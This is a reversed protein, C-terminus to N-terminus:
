TGTFYKLNFSYSSIKLVKDLFEEVSVGEEPPIAAEGNQIASLYAKWADANPQLNLAEELEEQTYHHEFPKITQRANIGDGVTIYEEQPRYKKILEKKDEEGKAYIQREGELSQQMAEGYNAKFLNLNDVTKNIRMNYSALKGADVIEKKAVREAVKASEKMLARAAKAEVGGVAFMILNGINAGATGSASLILEKTNNGYIVNNEMIEAAWDSVNQNSALGLWDNHIANDLARDFFNMGSETQLKTPNFAAQGLGVIVSPVFTAGELLSEVGMSYFNKWAAGMESAHGLNDRGVLGQHDSILDELIRDTQYIAEEIHGSEWLDKTRNYIDNWPIENEPM